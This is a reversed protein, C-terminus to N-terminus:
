IGSVISAVNSLAVFAFLAMGIAILRLAAMMNGKVLSIVSFGIVVAMIGIGAATESQSLGLRAALTMIIEFPDHM